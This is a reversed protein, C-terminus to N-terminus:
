SREEEKANATEEAKVIGSAAMSAIAAEDAYTRAYARAARRNAADIEAAALPLGTTYWKTM